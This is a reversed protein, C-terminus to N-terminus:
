ATTMSHNLSIRFHPRWRTAAGDPCAQLNFHTYGPAQQASMLESAFSSYSYLPCVGHNLIVYKIMHENGMFYTPRLITTNFNMQKLMREAGSKVAFHSMSVVRDAAFVSLYVIRDIRSKRAINLTIIAQNFEMVQLRM